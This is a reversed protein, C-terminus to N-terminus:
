VNELGQELLFINHHSSEHAKQSDIQHSHMQNCGYNQIGISRMFQFLLNCGQQFEMDNFRDAEVNVRDIFYAPPYLRMSEEVVQQCVKAASVRSM